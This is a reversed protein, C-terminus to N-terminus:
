KLSKIQKMLVYKQWPIRWSVFPLKDADRCSLHVNENRPWQASSKLLLPWNIAIPSSSSSWILVMWLLALVPLKWLINISFFLIHLQPHRFISPDNSWELITKPSSFLQTWSTDPEWPYVPLFILHIGLNCWMCQCPCVTDRKSRWTHLDNGEHTSLNQSKQWM